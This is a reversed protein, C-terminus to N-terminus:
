KSQKFLGKVVKKWNIKKPHSQIYDMQTGANKTFTTVKKELKRKLKQGYKTNLMIATLSAAAAGLIALTAKNGKKQTFM